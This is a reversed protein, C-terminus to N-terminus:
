KGAESIRHAYDEAVARVKPMFGQMQAVMTQMLSQMLQPMKKLLSNGAPSQYFKLIGDIDSQSFTDTYLKVYIPELKDWGMDAHILDVIKSRMEASLAQQKENLPKDGQAQKLMQEMMGDMQKYMGEVLNKANSVELLERVSSETPPQEAAFAPVAAMLAIALVFTKM